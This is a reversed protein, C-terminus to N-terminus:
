GEHYIREVTSWRDREVMERTSEALSQRLQEVLTHQAGHTATLIKNAKQLSEVGDRVDDQLFQLKGPFVVLIIISKM